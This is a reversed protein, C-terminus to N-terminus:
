LYDQCQLSPNDPFRLPIMRAFELRSKFPHVGMLRQPLLQTGCLEQLSSLFLNACRRPDHVRTHRFGSIACGTSGGHPDLAGPGDKVFKHTHKATLAAGPLPLM